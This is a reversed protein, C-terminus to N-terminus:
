RRLRSAASRVTTRGASTGASTCRATPYPWRKSPTACRTSGSPSCRGTSAVPFAVATDCGPPFNDGSTVVVAYSNDPSMAIDRMLPRTVGTKCQYDYLTTSWGSVSVPNTTLDVQAVGQPSCAGIKATNYVLMLKSGDSTAAMARM